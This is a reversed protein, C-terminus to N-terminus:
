APEEVHYTLHAVIKNGVVGTAAGAPFTMIVRTKATTVYDRGTAAMNTDATAGVARGVATSANFFLGPTAATGLSVTLTPTGNSDLQGEAKLFGGVVRARPPLDFMLVTDGAGLAATTTYEGRGSHSTRGGLGVGPTPYVRAGAVGSGLELSTYQVM